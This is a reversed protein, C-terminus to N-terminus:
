RASLEARISISEGKEDKCVPLRRLEHGLQPHRVGALAQQQELAVHAGAVERLGPAEVAELLQGDLVREEELALAQLVCLWLSRSRARRRSFRSCTYGIIAKSSYVNRRVHWTGLSTWGISAISLWVSEYENTVETRLNLQPM